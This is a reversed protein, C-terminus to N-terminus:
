CSISYGNRCKKTNGLTQPKWFDLDIGGTGPTGKSLIKTQADDRPIAAAPEEKKMIKNKAKGFATKLQKLIDKDERHFEEFHSALQSPSILDKMCIPCLFGERIEDGM